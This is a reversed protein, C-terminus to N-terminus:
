VETWRESYIHIITLQPNADEKLELTVERLKNNIKHCVKEYM